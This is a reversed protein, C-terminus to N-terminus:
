GCCTADNNQSGRSKLSWKQSRSAEILSVRTQKSATVVSGSLDCRLDAMLIDKLTVGRSWYRTLYRLGSFCIPNETTIIIKIDQVERAVTM